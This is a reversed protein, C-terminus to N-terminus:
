EALQSRTSMSSQFIKWAEALIGKQMWTLIIPYSIVGTMTSIILQLWPPLSSCLYLSGLVFISMLGGAVISPRLTSLIRWISTKMIRAAVILNISGGIFAIVAHTWGVAEISRIQSSAWWLAPILMVTRVASILTMTFIAGRAKYAHTANYALSLFLAYLAIARMVPIAESWKETFVTLIFPKSVIMLGLAIPVTILSVYNM